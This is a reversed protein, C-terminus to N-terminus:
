VARDPQVSILKEIAHVKSKVLIVNPIDITTGGLGTTTAKLDGAGFGLVARFFDAELREFRLGDTDFSEAGGGILREVTLQGPRVRWFMLRDFVFFMTLWIILLGTSFVLYFGTNMHVWLYPVLAAIDDWWGLWALLIALFGIALIAVVSNIGRLRVNTFVILLLLIAIFTLGVSSSPRAGEATALFQEQGANVLAALYGFAWAPWWYLLTSHSYIRLEQVPALKYSIASADAKIPQAKSQLTM